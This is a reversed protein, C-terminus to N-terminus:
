WLINISWFNPSNKNKATLKGRSKIKSARALYRRRREPDNHDLESWIGTKDKYHQYRTDGFHIWRKVFVKLKKNKRESKLIEYIKGDVTVKM